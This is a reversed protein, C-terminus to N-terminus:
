LKFQQTKEKLADAASEISSAATGLREVSALAADLAASAEEVRAKAQSSIGSLVQLDSNLEDLSKGMEGGANDLSAIGGSLRDLREIIGALNRASDGLAVTAAAASESGSFATKEGETIGAALEDLQKKIETVTEKISAALRQIRRAVVAFGRGYEGARAAEITANLALTNTQSAVDEIARVNDGIAATKEALKRIAESTKAADDETVKLQCAAEGSIASEKLVLTKAEELAGRMEAIMRSAGDVIGRLRSLGQGSASFVDLSQSSGREIELIAAATQRATEQLGASLERAAESQGAIDSLLTGATEVLARLENQMQNMARALSGYEDDRDRVPAIRGSLAKNAIRSARAQLSLVPEALSGGALLSCVLGLVLLFACFAYVKRAADRASGEIASADMDVRLVGRAGRDTLDTVPRYGSMVLRGGIAAARDDLSVSGYQAVRMGNTVQTYLQGPSQSAKRADFILHFQLDQDVTFLSVDYLGHVRMFDKLDSALKQYDASGPDPAKLIRSLIGPDAIGDTQQLIFALRDRFGKELSGRQIYGAFIGAAVVVAVTFAAFYLSLRLRLNM